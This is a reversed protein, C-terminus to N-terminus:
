QVTCQLFIFETLDTSFFTMSRELTGLPIRHLALLRQLHLAGNATICTVGSSITGLFRILLVRCVLFLHVCVVHREHSFQITFFGLFSRRLSRRSSWIDACGCATWRAIQRRRGCSKRGRRYTSRFQRRWWRTASRRGNCPKRRWWRPCAKRRRRCCRRGVVIVTLLLVVLVVLLRRRLLLWWLMTAIIVITVLLLRRRLLLVIAVLLVLLLLLLLM